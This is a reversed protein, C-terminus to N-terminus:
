GEEAYRLQRRRVFTPLDLNETQNGSHIMPVPQLAVEDEEDLQIQNEVKANPIVEELTHAGLGTVVLIVQAREQLRNDQKTGMVIDADPNAQEQLYVLANSMETLTLDEGATFNAIIGAAHSLSVTELLPHNMAQKIAKMAKDEGKGYGIAMLAGGRLQMLRRIHAFDVNILGPETILETIGQVAQRLVDDALRFATELSLHKPAVYLLRDNPITILTDTHKRLNNLGQTANRQRHGMEFSFPMTVVAIAVAGLSRAIEAAVPIAGTGTGGGMGATLFVMDAGALAAAIDKESEKAAIKGIAPDGGAGLGRTAKPGLQITVPAQSRKLAQLDTNAAIFDVGRLGLEMMRDVANGGGGGLGLVKLVPQHVPYQITSKTPINYKAEIM